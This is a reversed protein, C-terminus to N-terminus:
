MTCKILLSRSPQVLCFVFFCFSPLDALHLRKIELQCCSGKLYCMKRGRIKLSATTQNDGCVCSYEGSDEEAAEHICLENVTAEQKMLYTEGFKLVQRGKKWEVSVGPKSTECRLTVSSGEEVEQSQLKKTFTM